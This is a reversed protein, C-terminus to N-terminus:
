PNVRFILEFEVMTVLLAALDNHATQKDVKFMDVISNEIEDITHLGNMLEWVFAGLLNLEFFQGRKSVMMAIDEHSSFEFSLDSLAAHVTSYDAFVVNHQVIIGINSKYITDQCLRSNM